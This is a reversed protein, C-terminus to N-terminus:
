GNSTGSSLLGSGASLYVGGLLLALGEGEQVSPTNGTGHRCTPMSVCFARLQTYESAATLRFGCSDDCEEGNAVMRNFERHIEALFHMSSHILRRFAVLSNAQFDGQESGRFSITRIGTSNGGVFYKMTM